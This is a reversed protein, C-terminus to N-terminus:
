VWTRPGHADVVIELADEYGADPTGAIPLTTKWRWTAHSANAVQLMGFGYNRSCTATPQVPDHVAPGGCDPPQAEKNGAAGTVITTMYKCDTYTQANDAAGSICRLDTTNATGHAPVLRRYEHM